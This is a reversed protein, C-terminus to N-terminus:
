CRDRVGIGLVKVYILAASFSHLTNFLAVIENRTTATPLLEQPLLLLKLAAGFGLMTVKAHLRCKQCSVCDIVRSINHFVGKFQKKLSWWPSIQSASERFLLTEDFAEFVSSCSELIHTDLFRHM